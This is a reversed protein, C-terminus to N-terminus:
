PTVWQGLQLPPFQTFYLGGRFRPAKRDLALALGYTLVQFNDDVHDVREPMGTKVDIVTLSEDDHTIVVDATGESLLEGTDPDRLQVPVESELKGKPFTALFASVDANVARGNIVDSVLKHFATGKEAAASGAAYKEALYAAHGCHRALPMLSPRIM